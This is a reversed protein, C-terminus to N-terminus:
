IPRDPPSQNGGPPLGGPTEYGGWPLPICTFNVVNMNYVKIQTTNIGWTNHVAYVDLNSPNYEADM